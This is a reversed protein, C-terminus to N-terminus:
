AIKKNSEYLKAELTAIYANKLKALLSMADGLRPDDIAIFRRILFELENINSKLYQLRNM